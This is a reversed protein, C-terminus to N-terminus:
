GERGLGAGLKEQIVIIDRMLAEVDAETTQWSCMFRSGGGIFDYFVWGCDRLGKALEVPLPVFVANAEV